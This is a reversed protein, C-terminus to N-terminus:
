PTVCVGTDGDSNSETALWDNNPQSRQRKVCVADLFSM